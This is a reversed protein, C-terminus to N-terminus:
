PKDFGIPSTDTALYSYSGPNKETVMGPCGKRLNECDFAEGSQKHIHLRSYYYFSM